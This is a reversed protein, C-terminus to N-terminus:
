RIATPGFFPWIPSLSVRLPRKELWPVTLPVNRVTTTPMGLQLPLVRKLAFFGQDARARGAAPVALRLAPGPVSRRDARLAREVDARALERHRRGPPHSRRLRGAGARGPPRRAGRRVSCRRRSVALSFRAPEGGHPDPIALELMAGLATRPPSSAGAIARPLVRLVIRHVWGIRDLRAIREM